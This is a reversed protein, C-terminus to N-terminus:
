EIIFTVFQKVTVYSKVALEYANADSLSVFNVTIERDSSKEVKM